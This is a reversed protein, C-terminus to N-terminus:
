APPKGKSINSFCFETDKALFPASTEYTPNYDWRVQKDIFLTRRGINHNIFQRITIDYAHQKTLWEYVIYSIAPFIKKKAPTPSARSATSAIQLSSSFSPDVTM